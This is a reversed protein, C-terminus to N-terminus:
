SWKLWADFPFVPERSNLCLSLGWLIGGSYLSHISLLHQDCRSFAKVVASACPVVALYSMKPECWDDRPTFNSSSFFPAAICYKWFVSNRDYSAVVAAHKAERLWVSTQCLVPGPDLQEVLTLVKYGSTEAGYLVPKLVNRKERPSLKWKAKEKIIRLVSHKLKNLRRRALLRRRAM